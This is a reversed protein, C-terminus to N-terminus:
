GSKTKMWFFSEHLELYANDGAYCVLQPSWLYILIIRHKLKENHHSLDIFARSMQSLTEKQQKLYLLLTKKKKNKLIYKNIISNCNDWKGGCVCEGRYNMDM